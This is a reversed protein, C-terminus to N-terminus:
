FPIEDDLENLELNSAYQARPAQPRENVQPQQEYGDYEKNQSSAKTDILQLENCVIETTYREIGAKDQWKRTRISGEVYVKSGKRVYKQVIDALKGYVSIKHWETRETLQGSEKDKWSESTAISFNAVPDGSALSRYDPDSGVNGMIIAKNIGRAM